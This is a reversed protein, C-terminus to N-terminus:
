FEISYSLSPLFRYLSYLRKIAYDGNESNLVFYQMEVNRHGLANLMSFNVVHRLHFKKGTKFYYSAGLDLRSYYPLRASNRQGYEMAINGGIMYFSKVPTYPRGSSLSFSAMVEWHNGEHWTVNGKLKSWESHLSRWSDHRLTPLHRRGNGYSYSLSGTFNGFLRSLGVSFGYNYGNSIILKSFPNYDSDIVELVQGQYEASNFINRWYLAIDVSLEWIPIRRSANLSLTLARQMPAEDCAGIWFNSALGLESFGVQHLPQNLWGTVLQIKGEPIKLELNVKPTLILRSYAASYDSTCRYFGVATEASFKLRSPIIWIGLKGFGTTCTMHQPMSESHRLEQDTAMNMMMSAWQPVAKYDSFNMGANWESIRHGSKTQSVQFTAGTTKLSTPGDLTLQPMILGINNTFASYFLNTAIKLKGNHEYNLTCLHNKWKLVTNLALKSDDYGVNDVSSLVSAKIVDSSSVKYAMTANLDRFSFSIYNDSRNLLRKYVQDVYSIRGSLSLSLKDAIGARVTLSSATMGLNFAGEVGQRFRCASEMEFSAGLRPPLSSASQRNFRMASFHNTNFLSFIGGFRYPFVVPANDLFYQSHTPDAGDIILGSAYDGNSSVRSLNRIQNIFDTEGFTRQLKTIDTSKITIQGNDSERYQAAGQQRVELEPLDTQSYVSVSIFWFVTSFLVAKLNLMHIPTQRM